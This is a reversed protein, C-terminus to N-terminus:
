GLSRKASNSKKFIKATIIIKSDELMVKVLKERSLDLTQILKELCHNPPACLGREWNSVFQVHVDGLKEALEGQTLDSSMRKQKLYQGLNSFENM